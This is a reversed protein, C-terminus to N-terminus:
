NGLIHAPFTGNQEFPESKHVSKWLVRRLVGHLLEYFPKIQKVLSDMTESLNPLETEGRWVEGIDNFGVCFSSYFILIKTLRGSSEVKRVM